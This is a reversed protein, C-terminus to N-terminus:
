SNEEDAKIVDVIATDKKPKPVANFVCDAAGALGMNEAEQVKELTQQQLAGMKGELTHHGQTELSKNLEQKKGVEEEYEAELAQLIKANRELQGLASDSLGELKESPIQDFGDMEKQLKEIRKEKRAEEKEKRAVARRKERIALIKKKTEREKAKKKQMKKVERSTM